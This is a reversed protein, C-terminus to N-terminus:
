WCDKVIKNYKNLGVETLKQKLAKWCENYQIAEDSTLPVEVCGYGHYSGDKVSYRKMRIQGAQLGSCPPFADNPPLLEYNYEGDSLDEGLYKQLLQKVIKICDCVDKDDLDDPEGGDDPVPPQYGVKIATGLSTVGASPSYPPDYSHPFYKDGKKAMPGPADPKPCVGFKCGTQQSTVFGPPTHDSVRRPM